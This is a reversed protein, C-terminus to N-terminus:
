KLHFNVLYKCGFTLWYIVYISEIVCLQKLPESTLDDAQTKENKNSLDLYVYLCINLQIFSAASSYLISNFGFFKKSSKSAANIFEISKAM